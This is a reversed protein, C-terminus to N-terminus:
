GASAPLSGSVIGCVQSEPMIVLGGSMGHEFKANVEFCPFNYMGKDRGAWYHQKVTGTSKSRDSKFEIHEFKRAANVRSGDFCVNHIGFAIVESGIPPPDFTIPVTKWRKYKMADENFAKLWIIAIDSHPSLSISDIIWCVYNHDDGEWMVQM